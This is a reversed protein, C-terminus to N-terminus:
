LIWDPNTEMTSQVAWPRKRTPFESAEVILLFVAINQAKSCHLYNLSSSFFLTFYNMWCFRSIIEDCKQVKNSVFMILYNKSFNSKERSVKMRKRETHQKAIKINIDVPFSFRVYWTVHIYIFCLIIIFIM